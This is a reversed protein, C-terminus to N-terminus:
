VIAKTVIMKLGLVGQVAKTRIRKDSREAREATDRADPAATEDAFVVEDFCADVAFDVEGADDRAGASGM